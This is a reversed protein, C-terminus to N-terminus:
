LRSRPRLDKVLVHFRSNGESGEGVVEFGLRRHAQLSGENGLAVRALVLEYGKYRREVEEVLRSFVGKQRYATVVVVMGIEIFKYASLSKGQYTVKDLLLLRTRLVPIKERFYDPTPYLYGAMEEGVEAVLVPELDMIASVLSAPYLRLVFGSRKREEHSLSDKLNGRNIAILRPLDSKKADRITLPDM